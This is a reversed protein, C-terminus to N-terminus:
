SVLSEAAKKKRLKRASMIAGGIGLLLMSAPEPTPAGVQIGNLVARNMPSATALPLASSYKIVLQGSADTKADFQLYNQGAIFTSALGNSLTSVHDFGNVTVKLQQGTGGNIESQTLVYIGYNKSKELGAFTVTDYDSNPKASAASYVYNSMLEAYPTLAFGSETLGANVVADATYSFTLSAPSLDGNIDRLETPIKTGKSGDVLNQAPMINWFDHDNGIVAKGWYSDAEVNGGGFRIDYYATTGAYSTVSSLGMLAAALMLSKFKKM